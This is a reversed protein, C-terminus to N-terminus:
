TLCIGLERIGPLNIAQADAGPERDCPKTGDALTKLRNEAARFGAIAAPEFIRRRFARCAIV